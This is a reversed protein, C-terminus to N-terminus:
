LPRALRKVLQADRHAACREAPGEAPGSHVFDEREGYSYDVLLDHLHRVPSDLPIRPAQPCIICFAQM